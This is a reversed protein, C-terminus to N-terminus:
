AAGRKQRQDARPRTSRNPSRTLFLRRGTEDFREPFLEQVKLGLAKALVRELSASPMMLAHGLAQPSVGERFALQRVSLGRRRLQFSVWARRIAPEKPIDTSTIVSAM